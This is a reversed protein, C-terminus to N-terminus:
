VDLGREWLDMVMSSTSSSSTGGRGCCDAAGAAEPELEVESEAVVETPVSDAFANVM